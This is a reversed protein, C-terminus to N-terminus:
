GIKMRGLEWDDIIQDLRNGDVRWHISIDGLRARQGM